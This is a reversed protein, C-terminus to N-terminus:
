RRSAPARSGLLRDTRLAEGALDIGRRGIRELAPRVALALALTAASCVLAGYADSPWHVGAWVRAIAVLATLVVAATRAPSM